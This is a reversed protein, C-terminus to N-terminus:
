KRAGMSLVKNKFCLCKTEIQLLHRGAEDIGCLSM